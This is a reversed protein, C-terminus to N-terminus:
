CTSLDVKKHWGAGRESWLTRIEKKRPLLTVKLMTRAVKGFIACIVWQWCGISMRFVGISEKTHRQISSWSTARNSKEVASVGCKTILTASSERGHKSTSDYPLCNKTMRRKFKSHFITWGVIMSNVQRNKQKTPLHRTSSLLLM